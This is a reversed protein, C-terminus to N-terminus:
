SEGGQVECAVRLAGGGKIEYRRGVVWEGDGLRQEITLMAGTPGSSRRCYEIATKLTFPGWVDALVEVAAADGPEWVMVRYTARGMPEEDDHGNHGCGKAIREADAFGEEVRLELEARGVALEADKASLWAWALPRGGRDFHIVRAVRCLEPMVQETMVGSRWALVPLEVCGREDSREIFYTTEGLTFFHRADPTHPLKITLTTNM